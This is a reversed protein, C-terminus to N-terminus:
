LGPGVIPGCTPVVEQQYLFWYATIAYACSLSNPSSDCVSSVSMAARALRRLAKSCATTVLTVDSPDAIIVPPLTEVPNPAALQAKFAPTLPNSDPNASAFDSEMCEPCLTADSPNGTKSSSLTGNNKLLMELSALTDGAANKYARTIKFTKADVGSINLTHFTKSGAGTGAISLGTEAGQFNWATVATKSQTNASAAFNQAPYNPKAKTPTSVTTQGCAALALILIPAFIFKKMTIEKAVLPSQHIHELKFIHESRRRLGWGNRHELRSPNKAHETKELGVVRAM